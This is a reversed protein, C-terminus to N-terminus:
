KKLKGKVFGIPVVDDKSFFKTIVGNNYAVKGKITSEKNKNWPTRGKGAESIKRRHEESFKMGKRSESLKRKMENSKPKGKQYASIKAKTEDSLHNGLSNKNGKLAESLKQKTSDKLPIGTRSKNLATIFEGCKKPAASEKWHQTHEKTHKKGLHAKSIKERTEASVEHEVMSGHFKQRTEESWHYDKRYSPRDKYYLRMHDAQPLLILEFAPRYFYLGQKKLEDSLLGTERRIWEGKLRDYYHTELRHHCDYMQTEDGVALEYNEIQAIEEYRCYSILNNLNIM